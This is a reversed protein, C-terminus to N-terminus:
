EIVLGSRRLFQKKEEALMEKFSYDVSVRRAPNSVKVGGLFDKEGAAEVTIQTGDESLAEIKDKCGLDDSSIYVIKPGKGVEFIAKKTKEVLWEVYEDTKTYAKLKAKAGDMVEEIIHERKLLLEKKTELEVHLIKENAAKKAETISHQITEYAEELYENEKANVITDHKEQVKQMMEDRKNGADDLVLSTFTNLKERINDM